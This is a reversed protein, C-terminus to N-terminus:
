QPEQHQERQWAAFKRLRGVLNKMQAISARRQEYPTADISLPMTGDSLPQSLDDDAFQPPPPSLNKDLRQERDAIKLANV